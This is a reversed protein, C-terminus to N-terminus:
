AQLIKRYKTLLEPALTYRDDTTSLKQLLQCINETGIKEEWEFPGMPYNTGLKMALNIEEKSSINEGLAFYAENIIMSIVRASVLGPEDKVFVVRWGLTTFFEGAMVSDGSATECLTRELFGPWGNIRSFNSPVQLSKLTDTVSNIIVPVQQVKQLRVDKLDDIVDKLDDLLYMLADMKSWDDIQDMQEFFSVDPVNDMKYGRILERQQAANAVIFFNM